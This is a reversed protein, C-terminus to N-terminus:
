RYSSCYHPAATHVRPPAGPGLLGGAASLASQQTSRRLVASVSLSFTTLGQAAADLPSSASSGRSALALDLDATARRTPAATRPPQTTPHVPSLPSLIGPELM